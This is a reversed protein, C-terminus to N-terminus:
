LSRAVRFGLIRGTYEPTIGSRTDVTCYPVSRGWSGGRYVRNAGFRSPLDPGMPPTQADVTSLWDWCWEWVNGSMDYLGLANPSKLGVEHSRSQSIGNYWTVEDINDSGSYRLRWTAEDAPNGGRAALEWETELPLRYGKKSFDMFPVMETKAHEATYLNIFWKDSYYVCAEEGLTQKTLENCFLLADYWSVQEVPRLHSVEGELAARFNGQHGSPNRGMVAEYLEQTVEYRGIAFPAIEVTRGEVFLASQDSGNGSVAVTSGHPVVVVQTTKALTREGMVVDPALEGGAPVGLGVLQGGAKEKACSALLLIVAALVFLSNRGTLRNRM